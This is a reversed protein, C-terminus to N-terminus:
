RRIHALLEGQLRYLEAGYFREGTAEATGIGEEVAKMADVYHGLPPHYQCLM